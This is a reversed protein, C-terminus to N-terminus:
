QKIIFDLDNVMESDFFVQFILMSDGLISPKRRLFNKSQLKWGQRSLFSLDPDKKPERITDPAGINICSPQLQSMGSIGPLHAQKRLQLKLNYRTKYAIGSSFFAAFQLPATVM